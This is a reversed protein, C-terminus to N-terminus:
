PEFSQARAKFQGAENKRIQPTEYSAEFCVGSESNMLRVTVPLDFPLVPDPLDLGRGKVLVKAKGADGAKLIVKAIGDASAGQDAYKFGKAGVVWKVPDPPVQYTAIPSGGSGDYLCLTHTAASTPDGFEDQSTQAGKSWKWVIRDTSDNGADRIILSSKEAVRCSDPPTSLCNGEGDCREVTCADGDSLCEGGEQEFGCTSSCCDGDADNGDDCEEGFDLIGDGCSPVNVVFQGFVAIGDGVPIAGVVQATATDIVSLDGSNVNAAYVFTGEPHVGIGNPSQGVPVNGIANNTDTDIVSVSSASDNAAYVRSGDPLIGLGWPREIPGITEIVTNTSTDVVSVNDSHLNAVYVRSGDPHVAVGRSEVGITVGGMLNDAATDITYLVGNFGGAVSSVYAREGSPAIAIAIPTRAVTITKVVSNTFVDVVAIRKDNALTVYVRTGDPHAAVGFPGDGVPVTAIVTNSLTDIVSLDDSFVNAVYVRSGDPLGAVGIPRDGVTVTTMVLGADLDVVSVRFLDLHTVYARLSGAMVGRPLGLLLIVAVLVIGHRADIGQYEARVRGKTSLGM